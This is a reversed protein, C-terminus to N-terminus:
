IEHNKIPERNKRVRRGSRNSGLNIKTEIIDLKSGFGDIKEEIYIKKDTTLLDATLM